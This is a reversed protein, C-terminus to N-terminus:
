DRVVLVSTDAHRVVRAANPGLLYDRLEPHHAGIIILDCGLKKQAKLINEYISGNMIHPRISIDDDFNKDIFSQLDEGLKHVAKDHYNSKFFSGVMSTGFDPIISVTHIEAGSIKALTNASKAVAYAGKEDAIDLAVLVKKYM